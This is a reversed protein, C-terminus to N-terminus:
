QIKANALTLQQLLNSDLPNKIRFKRLLAPRRVQGNITPIIDLHKKIWNLCTSTSTKSCIKEAGSNNCTGDNQCNESFM